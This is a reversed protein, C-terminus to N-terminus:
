RATADKYQLGIEGVDKSFGHREKNQIMESGPNVGQAFRDLVVTGNVYKRTACNLADCVHCKKLM